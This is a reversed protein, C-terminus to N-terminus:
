LQPLCATAAFGVNLRGDAHLVESPMESHYTPRVSWNAISHEQLFVEEQGLEAVIRRAIDFLYERSAETRRGLVEIRELDDFIESNDRPRLWIGHADGATMGGFRQAVSRRFDALRKEDVTVNLEGCHESRPVLLTWRTDFRMPIGPSLTSDLHLVTSPYLLLREQAAPSRRLLVTRRQWGERCSRLLSMSASPDLDNPVVLALTASPPIRGAIEGVSEPTCFVMRVNNETPQSAETLLYKQRLLEQLNVDGLIDKAEACCWYRERQWTLSHILQWLMNTTETRDQSKIVYGEAGEDALELAISTRVTLAVTSIFSHSDKIRRILELGARPARPDLRVDVVAIFKTGDTIWEDLVELKEFEAVVSQYVAEGVSASADGGCSEAGSILQIVQNVPLNLVTASTRDMRGVWGKVQQAFEADDDIVFVKVRDLSRRRMSNVSAVLTAASEEFYSALGAQPNKQKGRCEELFKKGSELFSDVHEDTVFRRLCTSVDELVESSVHIETDVGQSPESGSRAEHLKDHLHFAKLALISGVQRLNSFGRVSHDSPSRSWPPTLLSRQVVRRAESQIEDLECLNEATRTRENHPIHPVHLIQENYLNYGKSDHLDRVWREGHPSIIVIPWKRIRANAEGLDLLKEYWTVLDSNIECTQAGLILFIGDSAGERTEYDQFYTCADVGPMGALTLLLGCEMQSCRDASIVVEIGM